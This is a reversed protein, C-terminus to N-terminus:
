CGRCGRVASFRARATCARLMLEPPAGGTEAAQRRACVGCMEPMRKRMRKRGGGGYRKSSRRRRKGSARGATARRAAGRPRDYGYQRPARDDGGDQRAAQRGDHTDAPHWSRQEAKTRAYIIEDRKLYKIRNSPEGRERLRYARRAVIHRTKDTWDGSKYDGFYGILRQAQTMTFLPFGELAEVAAGYADELRTEGMGIMELRGAFPPPVGYPDFVDLPVAPTELLARHLAGINEPIAMWARIEIREAPTMKRGCSLVELRRDDPPLKVM